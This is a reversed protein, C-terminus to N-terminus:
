ALVLLCKHYSLFWGYAILIFHKDTHSQKSVKVAGNGASVSRPVSSPSPGGLRLSVGCTEVEQWTKINFNWVACDARSSKVGVRPVNGLRHHYKCLFNAKTSATFCYWFFWTHWWHARHVSSYTWPWTIAFFVIKTKRGLEKCTIILGWSRTAQLFDFPLFVTHRRSM